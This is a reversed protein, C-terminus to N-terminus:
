FRATISNLSKKFNKLDIALTDGLYSGFKLMNDGLIVLCHQSFFDSSDLVTALQLAFGQRCWYFHRPPLKLQLAMGRHYNEKETAKCHWSPTAVTWSHLTCFM